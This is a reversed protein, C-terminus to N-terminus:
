VLGLINGNEKNISIMKNVIVFINLNLTFNNDNFGQLEIAQAVNLQPALNNCDFYYYKYNNNFRKLTILSSELNAGGNIVNINGGGLNGLFHEYNYDASKLLIQQGGVTINLNKLNVISPINPEVNVLSSTVNKDNTHKNNIYPIILVGVPNIVSNNLKISFQSKISLGIADTYYFDKFYFDRVPNSIYKTEVTPDMVYGAIYIESNRKISNGATITFTLKTTSAADATLINAQRNVYFPCTTYQFLNVTESCNTALKKSAGSFSYVSYGFNLFMTLNDVFLKSLSVEKFFNSIDSLKLYCMFEYNHERASTRTITDIYQGKRSGEGFYKTQVDNNFINMKDTKYTFSEFEGMNNFVNTPKNNLDGSTGFTFEYKSDPGTLESLFDSDEPYFNLYDFNPLTNLTTESLKQWNYFENMRNSSQHIVKSNASMTMSNILHLNNKLTIFNSLPELDKDNCEVKINIPIMLVGNAWDYYKNLNYINSLQYYLQNTSYTNNNNDQVTHYQKSLFSQELNMNSMGQELTYQDRTSM